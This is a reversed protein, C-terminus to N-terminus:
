VLAVAMSGLCYVSGLWIFTRVYSVGILYAFLYAVRLGLWITATEAVPTDTGIALVALPLFVVLSEQINVAARDARRVITSKEVTEDRVGFLSAADIEGRAVAILSPLMLHLLYFALTTLVVETM